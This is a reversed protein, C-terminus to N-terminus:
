DPSGKVKALGLLLLLPLLVAGVVLESLAVDPAQLSFFLLMLLVGYISLLVVQRVAERMAVVATAGLGIFVLLVVVLLNMTWEPAPPNTLSHAVSIV